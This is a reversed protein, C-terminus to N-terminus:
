TIIIKYVNSWILYAVTIVASWTIILTWNIKSKKM